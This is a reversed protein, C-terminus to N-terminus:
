WESPTPVSPLCHDTPVIAGPSWTASSLVGDGRPSQYVASYRCSPEASVSCPSSSRVAPEIPLVDSRVSRSRSARTAYKRVRHVGGEQYANDVQTCHIAQVVLGKGSRDSQLLLL